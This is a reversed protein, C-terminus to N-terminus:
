GRYLQQHCVSCAVIFCKEVSGSSFQGVAAAPSAASSISPICCCFFKQLPFIIEIVAGVGLGFVDPLSDIQEEKGGERM